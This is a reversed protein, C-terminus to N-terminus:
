EDGKVKKRCANKNAQKKRDTFVGGTKEPLPIRIRLKGKKM